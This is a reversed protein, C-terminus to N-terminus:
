EKVEYKTLLAQFRPNSRLPDWTPNLRLLHPTWQGSRSLLEDLTAIAEDARGTMTYVLARDELRNLALLADKSAPMLDCGLRAERIAELRKGLAAYSIGLSSHCRADEPDQKVKQELELRATEFARRAPESRGALMLVEGRVLSVPEYNADFDFALRSQADLLRL